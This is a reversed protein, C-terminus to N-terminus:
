KTKQLTILIEDAKQETNAIYPIILYGEARLITEHQADFCAEDLATSEFYTRIDCYRMQKKEGEASKKFISFNEDKIGFADESLILVICHHERSTVKLKMTNRDKTDTAKLKCELKDIDVGAAYSGEGINSVTETYGEGWMYWATSYPLALFNTFVLGKKIDSNGHPVGTLGITNIGDLCPLQRLDNIQTYLSLPMSVMSLRIEFEREWENIRQQMATTKFEQPINGSIWSSLTELAPDPEYVTIRGMSIEWSEETYDFWEDLWELGPWITRYYEEGAFFQQLGANEDYRTHYVPYGGGKASNPTEEPWSDWYPTNEYLAVRGQQIIGQSILEKELAAEIQRGQLNDFGKPATGNAYEIICGEFEPNDTMKVRHVFGCVNYPYANFPVPAYATFDAEDYIKTEYKENLHEAMEDCVCAQNMKADYTEEDALESASWVFKFFVLIGIIVYLITKKKYNRVNFKKRVVNGSLYALIQRIKESYPNESLKGDPSNAMEDSLLQTLKRQIEKYIKEDIYKDQIVDYFLEWFEKDQCLRKFPDSAFFLLWKRQKALGESGFRHQEKNYTFLDALQKKAAIKDLAKSDHMDRFANIIDDKPTETERETPKADASHEQNPASTEKKSNNEHSRDSFVDFDLNPCFDQDTETYALAQKYADHLLQWGQPDDEPHILKVQMAYAKKIKKKDKTKEIGLITFPNNFDEM